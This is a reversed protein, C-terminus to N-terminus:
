ADEKIKGAAALRSAKWAEVESQRWAVSRDTIPFNKPFTGTAMMEYIASTTLGTEQEVRKRRWFQDTQM